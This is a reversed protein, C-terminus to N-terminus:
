SRCIILQARIQYPPHRLVHPVLYAAHSRLSPIYLYGMYRAAALMMAAPLRWRRTYGAVSADLEDGARLM